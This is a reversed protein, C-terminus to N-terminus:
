SHGKSKLWANLSDKFSDLDGLDALANDFNQWASNAATADEVIRSDGAETAETETTEEPSDM